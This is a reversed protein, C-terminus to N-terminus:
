AKFDYAGIVKQYEEPIEKTYLLYNHEKITDELFTRVTRANAYNANLRKIGLQTLVESQCNKNVTFGKSNAMNCFIQWLDAMEYDKFELYTNIRSQLGSNLDLLQSMEKKYGALIITLSDRDNEMTNLLVALAELGEGSQDYIFAYAEDIFLVKGHARMLLLQMKRVPNSSSLISSADTQIYQNNKIYGYKYLLSTIIKVVTTKGTGPNGLFCMHYAHRDEAKTYAMNAELKKVELKVNELGVLKNLEDIPNVKKPFGEKLINRYEADSLSQEDLLTNMVDIQSREEQSLRKYETSKKHGFEDVEISQLLDPRIENMIKILIIGIVCFTIYLLGNVPNDIVSQLNYFLFVGSLICLGLGVLSGLFTLYYKIHKM